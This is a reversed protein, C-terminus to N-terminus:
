PQLGDALLEAVEEAVEEAHYTDMDDRHVDVYGSEVTDEHGAHYGSNYLRVLVSNGATFLRAHTLQKELWAIYNSDEACYSCIQNLRELESLFEGRYDLKADSM